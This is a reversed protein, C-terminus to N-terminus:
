PMRWATMAASTGASQSNLIAKGESRFRIHANIAQAEADRALKNQVLQSEALTVLLKNADQQNRLAIMNAANIKNLVAIETNMNDAPSLADDELDLIAREVSPANARLRGVTDIAHINASDALEVTAYNTKLRDLQDDPIGNLASGYDKLRSTAAQYGALVGSGSNIGNVWGGTTGYVNSATTSRWPTARARYRANQNVPVRQSMRVMHEYQSRIQQYTRVLQEYQQEMQLLQQVAEEFNTPDFVIDGLGFIAMAPMSLTICIALCVVLKQITNWTM